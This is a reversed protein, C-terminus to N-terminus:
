SEKGTLMLALLMESKCPERFCKGCPGPVAGLWSYVATIMADNNCVAPGTQEPCTTQTAAPLLAQKMAREPRLHGPKGEDVLATKEGIPKPGRERETDGAEAAPVPARLSGDM